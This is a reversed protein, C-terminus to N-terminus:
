SVYQVVTVNGYDDDDEPPLCTIGHDGFKLHFKGDSGIVLYGKLNNDFYIRKVTESFINLKTPNLGIAQHIEAPWAQVEAIHNRRLKLPRIGTIRPVSMNELSYFSTREEAHTRLAFANDYLDLRYNKGCPIQGICTLTSSESIHGEECPEGNMIGYAFEVDGDADFHVFFEVEGYTIPIDEPELHDLDWQQPPLWLRCRRSWIAPLGVLYQWEGGDVLYGYETEYCQYATEAILKLQDVLTPKIVPRWQVYFRERYEAARREDEDCIEEFAM